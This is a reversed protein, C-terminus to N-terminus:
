VQKGRTDDNHSSQSLTTPERGFDTEQVWQHYKAAVDNSAWRKLRQLPSLSSDFISGIFLSSTILAIFHAEFYM